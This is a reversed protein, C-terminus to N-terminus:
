AQATDPGELIVFAVAFRDIHTLSLHWTIGGLKRACEAAAGHLQVQPRQKESSPIEIDKFRVGCAWGTGLAKMVSEKAAFRAAFREASKKPNSLCYEIEEPIVVDIPEWRLEMRGDKLQFVEKITIGDVTVQIEKPVESM